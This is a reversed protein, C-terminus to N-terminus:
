SFAGKSEGLEEGKRRLLKRTCCPVDAAARLLYCQGVVPHTLSQLDHFSNIALAIDLSHEGLLLGLDLLTSARWSRRGGHRHHYTSSLAQASREHSRVISSSAHPSESLVALGRASDPQGHLGWSFTSRLLRLAVAAPGCSHRSTCPLTHRFIEM